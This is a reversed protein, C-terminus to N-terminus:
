VVEVELAQVSNCGYQFPNPDPVEPQSEGVADVARCRIRRVGSRDPVWRLEWDSWAFRGVGPRLRGATWGSGTDVEVSRIPGDASWAKGRILCPEGCRVHEGARPRVVISKVRLREVPVPPVGKGEASRYVYRSSQFWGEFPRIQVHISAIWKVWAMGYWGPVVLRVPGGHDTPLPEGNLRSAVLTEAAPGGPMLSLGREFRPAGSDEPQDAGLFAVYQTGPRPGAARLLETLPTGSWEACGVAGDGWAIEGPAIEGFRKRSNGACELTAVISRQPLADLDSLNWRRPRDVEGAVAITWAGEALQPAPYHSRVFLHSAETLDTDFGAGDTEVNRVERDRPRENSM